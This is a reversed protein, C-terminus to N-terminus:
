IERAAEREWFMNKGGHQNRRTLLRDSTLSVKKWKLEPFCRDHAQQTGLEISHESFIFICPCLKTRINITEYSICLLYVFHLLHEILPTYVSRRFCLHLLWRVRSFDLFNRLHLKAGYMLILFFQVSWIWLTYMGPHSATM